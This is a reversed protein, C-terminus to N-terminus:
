YSPNQQTGPLPQKPAPDVAKTTPFNKQVQVSAGGNGNSYFQTVGVSYGTNRKQGPAGNCGSALLVIIIILILKKM